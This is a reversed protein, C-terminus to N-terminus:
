SGHPYTRMSLTLRSPWTPIFLLIPGFIPPTHFEVQIIRASTLMYAYPVVSLSHVQLEKIWEKHKQEFVREILEKTKTRHPLDSDKLDCACYLLLNRFEESEM